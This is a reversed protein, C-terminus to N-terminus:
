VTIQLRYGDGDTEISLRDSGLEKLRQRLRYIHTELTHTNLEEDYGWVAKQLQTRPVRQGSSSFLFEMIKLEKHTLPIRIAVGSNVLVSHFRDLWVTPTIQVPSRERFEARWQELSTRLAGIKVPKAVVLLPTKIQPSPPKDIHKLLIVQPEPEPLTVEQGWGSDLSDDWLILDPVQELCQAIWDARTTIRAVQPLHECLADM